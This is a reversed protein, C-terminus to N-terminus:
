NSEDSDETHEITVAPDIAVEDAEDMQISLGFPKVRLVANTFAAGHRSAMEAQGVDRFIPIAGPGEGSAEFLRMFETSVACIKFKDGNSKSLETLLELFPTIGSSGVFNLGQLNFIVDRNTFIKICQSKLSDASEFDLHGSLNVVFIGDRDEVKAEM